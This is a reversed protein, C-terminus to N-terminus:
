VLLFRSISYDLIQRGRQLFDSNIEVKELGSPKFGFAFIVSELELVRYVDGM